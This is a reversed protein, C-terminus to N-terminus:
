FIIKFRKRAGWYILIIWFAMFTTPYSLLQNNAPIYIIMITILCLLVLAIPDDYLIVSKYVSGFLFGILFMIIIVGIYHVDNAAWVYFSHWNVYPHWGYVSMRNQYTIEFLNIGFLENFNEMLFMSNGIGFMPYFQLDLSLSFAYYGQTLYSALYILTPKLYNPAIKMLPADLNINVNGNSLSFNSWNQNVRDGVNNTFFFMAIIILILTYFLIKNKKFISIKTNNCTINNRLYKITLVVFIIIILDIVGKSTGISIWRAFEFFLSLLIIIKYSMKFRGYNYISLPLVPWLVPAFLVSFYTFYAGGLRLVSFKMRYQSAPNIIGNVIPNIISSFTFSSIGVTYFFNFLIYIFNIVIMVSLYRNLSTIKFNIIEKKVRNISFLYGFAFFLQFLFILLYFLVPKHTPWEWPGLVYLLMVGLFYSQVLILPYILINRINRLNVKM